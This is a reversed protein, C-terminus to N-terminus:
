RDSRRDARSYGVAIQQAWVVFGNRGQEAACRVATCSAVAAQSRPDRTMLWAFMLTAALLFRVGGSLFPPMDSRSRSASTPRGWVVYICGYALTIRAKLTATSM